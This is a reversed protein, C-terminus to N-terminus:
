YTITVVHAQTATCTAANCTGAQNAPITGTLTIVQDSGTGTGTAPSAAITYNLGLLVNSAPSIAISWPLTNSCRLDFQRTLVQATPSFATYNFSMATPFTNFVCQNNVGITYTLPVSPTLVGVDSNPYQGTILVNDTYIGAAPAAPNPNVSGRVRVCYGWVASASSAGTGFTLTGTIVNTTGTAPAAWTSTNGCTAAGGVVTGRRLFYTLYNTTAGLRVRRNTAFNNGNNAKIRYTISAPDTSPNRTCTLTVTGNTDTNAGAVYLVGVSTTSINCSIAAQASLGTISLLLAALPKLPFGAKM